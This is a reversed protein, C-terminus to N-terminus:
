TPLRAAGRIMKLATVTEFDWEGAGEALLLDNALWAMYHAMNKATNENIDNEAFARRAISLAVCRVDDNGDGDYFKEANSLLAALAKEYSDTDIPGVILQGVTLKLVQDDEM